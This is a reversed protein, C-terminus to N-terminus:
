QCTSSPVTFPGSTPATIEGCSGCDPSGCVYTTETQFTVDVAYSAGNSFTLVVHCTGAKDANVYVANVAYAAGGDGAYPSTCPGTVAVNTLNTSGCSFDIVASKSGDCSGCCTARSGCAGLSRAVAILTVFGLVGGLGLTLRM